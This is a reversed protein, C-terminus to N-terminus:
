VPRVEAGRRAKRWGRGAVIALAGLPVAITWGVAADWLAVSDTKFQQGAMEAYGPDQPDVLVRVRTGVPFSQLSPVLVTVTQQGDVPDALSVNVDETSARTGGAIVSTVTAARPVGHAQTYASKRASAVGNVLVVVSIALAVLVLFLLGFFVAGRLVAAESLPEPPRSSSPRM